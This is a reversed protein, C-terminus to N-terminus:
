SWETASMVRVWEDQGNLQYQFYLYYGTDTETYPFDSYGNKQWQKITVKDGTRYIAEIKGGSASLYDEEVTKKVLYTTHQVFSIATPLLVTRLQLDFANYFNLIFKEYINRNFDTLHEYGETVTYDIGHLKMLDETAKLKLDTLGGKKYRGKLEEFETFDM